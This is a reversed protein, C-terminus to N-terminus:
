RSYLARLEEPTHKSHLDSMKELANAVEYQRAARARDHADTTLYYNGIAQWRYTSAEAADYETLPKPLQAGTLAAQEEYFEAMAQWRAIEADQIRQLRQTDSLAYVNTGGAQQLQSLDVREHVDTMRYITAGNSDARSQGSAIFGFSGIAIAIFVPLVFRTITNTAKM